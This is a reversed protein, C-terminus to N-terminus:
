ALSVFVNKIQTYEALAERGAERGWGSEKFGGFPVTYPLNGYSNIWVVGAQIQGAVRHARGVNTTWIGAALGYRTSNALMVAEEEESFSRLILVPGFIEEKWLRSDPSVGTVITPSLFFGSSLDGGPRESRLFFTAGEHEALAVYGEVRERHEASILPGLLTAPALPDGAPLGRVFAVLRESFEQFISAHVLIRTGAACAQGSLALGGLATGAVARDVPADAFVLQPSKGGLELTSKKLGQAALAAVTKGTSCGGTFSIKDVGPHEVLARGTAPGGTVVNIIGPPVEAELCLEAFRLTSASGLESPKVVVTNGTALAPGLKSGLFVLPTNWATIAAVVGYPERKWYDLAAEAGPVPVVTGYIKDCWSAYYELNRALAKVGFNQAVARVMGVDLMELLALEERHADVVAALRQLVRRREAPSTKAWHSEFATRAAKVARDVDVDDAEAIEGWREGTAPDTVPMRKSGHPEAWAGAIFLRPQPICSLSARATSHDIM